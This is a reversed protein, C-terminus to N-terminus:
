TMQGPPVPRGRWDLPESMDWLEAQEIIEPLEIQRLRWWLGMYLLARDSDVEKVADKFNDYDIESALESALTAWETKAMNTRYPYDAEPTEQITLLPWNSERRGVDRWLEDLRELDERARARVIVLGPHERHEVVSYFGRPTMLWM